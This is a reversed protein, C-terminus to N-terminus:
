SAFPFREKFDLKEQDKEFDDLYQIAVKDTIFSRDDESPYGLVGIIM